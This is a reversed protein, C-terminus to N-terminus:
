STVMGIMTFNICAQNFGSQVIRLIFTDPLVIVGFNWFLELKGLVHDRKSNSLFEGLYPFIISTAGIIGFGNFFRCILFLYRDAVLSSVLGSIFDVLLACIIAQKRGKTDAIYGWTICGFIMGILPTASLKGKDASTLNFDCEASPLVFSLTTTSIACTAYIMGCVFLLLKQFKGYRAFNIATEFDAGETIEAVVSVIM